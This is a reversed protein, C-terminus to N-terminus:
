DEKGKELEKDEVIIGFVALARYIDNYTEKGSRQTYKALDGLLKVVRWPASKELAREAEFLAQLYDEDGTEYYKRTLRIVKNVLEKDLTTNYTKEQVRQENNEIYDLVEDLLLHDEQYTEGSGDPSLRNRLEIENDYLVKM